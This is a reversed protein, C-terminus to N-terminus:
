QTVMMEKRAKRPANIQFNLGHMEFADIGRLHKDIDIDIGEKIRRKHSRVWHLIPRLRGKDTMPMSRAYFLSKVYEKDISFHAKAPMKELFNETTQVDWFYRRDNHMGVTYALCYAAHMLPSGDIECGVCKGDPMVGAFYPTVISEIDTSKDVVMSRSLRNTGRVMGVRYVCIAGSLAAHKKALWPSVKCAYVARAFTHKDLENVLGIVATEPLMDNVLDIETALALREKWPFRVGYAVLPAYDEIIAAGSTRSDMRSSNNMILLMANIAMDAIQEDDLPFQDSLWFPQRDTIPPTRSMLFHMLNM